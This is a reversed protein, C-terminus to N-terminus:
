TISRKPKMGRIDAGGTQGSQQLPLWELPKWGARQRRWHLRADGRGQQIAHEKYRWEAKGRKEVSKKFNIILSNTASFAYGKQATYEGLFYCTDDSSLYYHDPRSLADVQTLRQPFINKSTM